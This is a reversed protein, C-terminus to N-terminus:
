YTLFNSSKCIDVGEGEINYYLQFYIAILLLIGSTAFYFSKLTRTWNRQIKTLVNLIRFFYFMM